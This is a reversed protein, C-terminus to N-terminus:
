TLFYKIGKKPHLTLNIHKKTHTPSLHMHIRIHTSKQTQTHILRYTYTYTCIHPIDHNYRRKAMKKNEQYGRAIGKGREKKGEARYIYICLIFVCVLMKNDRRERERKKWIYQCMYFIVDSYCPFKALTFSQKLAGPVEDHRSICWVSHKCSLIM